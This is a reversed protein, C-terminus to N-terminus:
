FPMGMFWYSSLNNLDVPYASGNPYSASVETVFIQYHPQEDFAAVQKFTCGVCVQADDDWWDKLADLVAKEINDKDPKSTHWRRGPAALPEGTRKSVACLAKPRPFIALIRVEVPGTFRETPMHPAAMSRLTSKHEKAKKDEFIMGRYRASGDGNTGIRMAGVRGRSQGKPVMPIRFLVSKM